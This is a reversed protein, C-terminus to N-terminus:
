NICVNTKIIVTDSTRSVSGLYINYETNSELPKNDFGGYTKGDGVAFIEPLNEKPLEAAVYDTTMDSRLQRSNTAERKVVPQSRQVGIQIGRYLLLLCSAQSYTIVKKRMTLKYCIWTSSYDYFMQCIELLKLWSKRTNGQTDGHIVM